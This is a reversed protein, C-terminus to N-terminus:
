CLFVLGHSKRPSRPQASRGLATQMCASKLGRHTKLIRLFNRPLGGISFAWRYELLDIYFALKTQMEERHDFTVDRGNKLRQM